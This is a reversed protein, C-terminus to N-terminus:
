GTIPGFFVQVVGAAYQIVSADGGRRASISFSQAGAPPASLITWGARPLHITYYSAVTSAAVDTRTNSSVESGAVTTGAANFQTPVPQGYSFPPALLEPPISVAAPAPTSQVSRVQINWGDNDHLDRKGSSSFLAVTFHYEGPSKPAPGGGSWVGPSSMSLAYAQPPPASPLGSGLYVEM